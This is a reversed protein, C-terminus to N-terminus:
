YDPWVCILLKAAYTESINDHTHGIISFKRSWVTCFDINVFLGLESDNTFQVHNCNTHIFSVKTAMAFKNWDEKNAAKGTKKFDIKNRLM